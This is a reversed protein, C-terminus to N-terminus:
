HHVAVCNTGYIRPGVRSRQVRIRAKPGAALNKSQVCKDSPSCERDLVPRTPFEQPEFWDATWANVKAEKDDQGPTSLLPNVQSDNFGHFETTNLTQKDHKGNQTNGFTNELDM